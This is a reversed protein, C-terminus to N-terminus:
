HANFHAIEEPTLPGTPRVRADAFGANQIDHLYQDKSLYTGMCLHGDATGASRVVSYLEDLVQGPVIDRQCPYVYTFFVLHALLVGEHGRFHRLLREWDFQRGQCLILHAVDAGDFRNRDQVFAKSWLMEEPPCLPTPRGLIEARVSHKFWEDDVPCLGNGSNYLFDIFDGDHLAKVLFHPWTLETKYDAIAFADLVRERDQRRIFVDLDKTHRVIGTYYAMAYGGGVVYPAGSRDLIALAHVYFDKTAKPPESPSAHIAAAHPNL